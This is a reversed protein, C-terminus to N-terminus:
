QLNGVLSALSTKRARIGTLSKEQPFLPDNESPYPQKNAVPIPEGCSGLRKTTFHSGTNANTNTNNAQTSSEQPVAGTNSVGDSASTHSDTSAESDNQNSTVSTSNSPPNLITNWLAVTDEDGYEGVEEWDFQELYEEMQQESVAIIDFESALTDVVESELFQTSSFSRPDLPASGIVAPDQPM